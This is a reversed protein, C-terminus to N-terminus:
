LAPVDLAIKDVTFFVCDVWSLKTLSSAAAGPESRVNPSTM